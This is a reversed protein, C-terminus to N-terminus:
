SKSLTELLTVAEKAEKVDHVRLIQAGKMLAVTHLVTSGNLANDADTKLTKYIMSKRSVGVLIPLNLMKFNELKSLLHYNQVMNKSFGFGLDIITDKIGAKKIKATQTIFYSLIEQVVDEYDTYKQMTEPTGRMHMCVYPVSYQGVVKHMDPSFHGGSIDNIMHAGTDLVYKAVQSHITDISFITNPFQTLIEPLILDYITKEFDPLTIIAGPRSSMVGLDIIDAGDHLMKAIKSLIEEITKTQSGKYFSDNNINIIGMIKPSSLDLVLSNCNIVM